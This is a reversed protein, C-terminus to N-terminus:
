IWANRQQNSGESFSTFDVVSIQSEVVSCSTWEMSAYMKDKEQEKEQRNQHEEIAIDETAATDPSKDKSNKDNKENEKEKTDAGSEAGTEAGTEAGPEAIDADVNLELDAFLNLPMPRRPSAEDEAPLDPFDLEDLGGTREPDKHENVIEPIAHDWADQSADQGAREDVIVPAAGRQPSGGSTSMQYPAANPDMGYNRAIQVKHAQAQAQAQAQAAQAQAARHHQQQMIKRIYHKPLNKGVDSIVRLFGYTKISSLFTERNRHGTMYQKIVYRMEVTMYDFQGLSIDNFLYKLAMYWMEAEDVKLPRNTVGVFSEESLSQLFTVRDKEKYKKNQYKVIGPFLDFISVDRTSYGHCPHYIGGNPRIVSQVNVCAPAVNEKRCSERLKEVAETEETEEDNTDSVELEKDMSSPMPLPNPLLPPARRVRKANQVRPKREALVSARAKAATSPKRMRKLSRRSATPRMELKNPKPRGLPMRKARKTKPNNKPPLSEFFDSNCFYGPGRRSAPSWQAGPALERVDQSMAPPDRRPLPKAADVDGNSEFVHMPMENHDHSPVSAAGDDHDHNPQEANKLKQSRKEAKKVERWIKRAKSNVAGIYAPSNSNTENPRTVRRSQVERRKNEQDKLADVVSNPLANPHPSSM